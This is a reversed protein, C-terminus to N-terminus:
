RTLQSRHPPPRHRLGAHQQRDDRSPARPRGQLVAQGKLRPLLHPDSTRRRGQLDQHPVPGPHLPEGVPRIRGRGPGPTRSQRAQQHAKPSQNNHLTAVESVRRALIFQLFRSRPNPLGSEVIIPPHSDPSPIPSGQPAAPDIYIYIYIISVDQVCVRIKRSSSAPSTM